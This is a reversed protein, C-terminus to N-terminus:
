KVLRLNERAEPGQEVDVGGDLQRGCRGCAFVVGTYGTISGDETVNFVATANEADIARFWSSGCECRRVPKM